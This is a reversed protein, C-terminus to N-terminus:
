RFIRVLSHIVFSNIEEFGIAYFHDDANVLVRERFISYLVKVRGNRVELGWGKILKVRDFIPYRLGGGKYVAAVSVPPRPRDDRGKLHKAVPM